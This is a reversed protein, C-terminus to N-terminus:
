AAENVDRDRILNKINDLFASDKEYAGYMSYFDQMNCGGGDKFNCVMQSIDDITEEINDIFNLGDCFVGGKIAYHDDVISKVFVVKEGSLRSYIDKGNMLSYIDEKEEIVLKVEAIYIKEKALKYSFVVDQNRRIYAGAEKLKRRIYPSVYKREAEKYGTINEDEVHIEYLYYGGDVIAYCICKGSRKKQIYSDIGGALKKRIYYPVEKRVVAELTVENAKNNFLINRRM